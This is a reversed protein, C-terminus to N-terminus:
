ECYSILLTWVTYFLVAVIMSCCSCHCRVLMNRTTHGGGATSSRWAMSV